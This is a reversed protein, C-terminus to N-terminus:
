KDDLLKFDSILDSVSTTKQFLVTLLQQSVELSNEVDLCNLLEITSDGYTRLWTRLLKSYCAEKVVDTRYM